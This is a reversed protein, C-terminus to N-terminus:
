YGYYQKLFDLVQAISKGRHSIQNKQDEGLATYVKSFGNPKFVSSLPLGPYLPAEITPTIVGHTEGYFHHEQGDIILSIHSVFKATREAPEPFAQMANMFYDIWESDTATAGAGWRRTHVGLQDQLADIVIGSDEGLTPIGKSAKSYFNAKILANEQYTSGSEIVDDTIGLDLPTILQVPINKLVASIEKIKGPNTTGVLLQIKNTSNM